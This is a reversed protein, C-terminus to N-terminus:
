RGAPETFRSKRLRTFSERQAAAEKTRGARAYARALHFSNDPDDPGLQTAAELERIANQVDNIELLVRGYVQRSVYWEPGIAAASRAPPLAKEQEGRRLYENALQLLSAVHSEQVRLEETFARVADDPRDRLLFIGYAYHVNPNKGFREILSRYLADAQDRQGAAAHSLARGALLIPELKDGPIEGPLSAILLASLGLAPELQDPPVMGVLATLERRAEDFRSSRILLIGFTYRTLIGLERNDGTGFRRANGLAKLAPEFQRADFHSLGKFAWAGGNEPHKALVRDFAAVAGQSDDTSYLLTGLDWWGEEWDPNLNLAQRYQEIAEPTRAAGRLERAKQATQGFPTTAPAAQALLLFLCLASM